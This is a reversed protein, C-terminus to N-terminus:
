RDRAEAVFRRPFPRNVGTRLAGLSAGLWGVEARQDDSRERRNRRRAPAAAFSTLKPVAPLVTAPATPPMAPLDSKVESMGISDPAAPPTSMPAKAPCNTPPPTDPAITEAITPRIRFRIFLAKASGEGGAFCGAVPRDM